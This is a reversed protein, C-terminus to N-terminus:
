RKWCFAFHNSWRSLSASMLVCNVPCFCKKQLNHGAINLAYITILIERGGEDGKRYLNELLKARAAPSKHSSLLIAKSGIFGPLRHVFLTTQPVARFILVKCWMKAPLTAQPISESHHPVDNSRSRESSSTKSCSLNTRTNWFSRPHPISM